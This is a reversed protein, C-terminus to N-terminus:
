LPTRGIFLTRGYNDEETRTDFGVSSMTDIWDAQSFLGMTHLEHEIRLPQEQERLVFVYDTLCIQDNPDPDYTWELYRVARGDGDHGGHETAEEFTEATHDPVILATGGPKCHLYATTLAARVDELTTMYDIADHIFVADFTRDLRLTRMDGIIHECEPNITKSIALMQPSLDTLTTHAFAHKMHFANNGGGSGLELLQAGPRATVEKLQELFFRAEDAYDEPVSILHWWRALEDYFKQM